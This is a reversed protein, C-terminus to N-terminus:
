NSDTRSQGLRAGADTSHQTGGGGKNNHSPHAVPNQNTATRIRGDGAFFPGGPETGQIFRVDCHVKGIAGLNPDFLGAVLPDSHHIGLAPASPHLRQLHGAIM